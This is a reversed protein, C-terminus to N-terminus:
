FGLDTVDACHLLPFIVSMLLRNSLGYTFDKNIIKVSRTNLPPGYFPASPTTWPGTWLLRRVWHTTPTQPGPILIKPNCM